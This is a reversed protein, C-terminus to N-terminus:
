REELARELALKILGGVRSRGFRVDPEGPEQNHVTLVPHEREAAEMLKALHGLRPERWDQRVTLCDGGIYEGRTGGDVATMRIEGTAPVAESDIAWYNTNRLFEDHGLGATAIIFRGARMADYAPLNWSEGRSATVYCDCTAHLNDIEEATLRGTTFHIPPLDSPQMGTAAISAMAVAAPAANSSHVHLEVGNYKGFARLYARVVGEINKRASWAGITYFRYPDGVGRRRPPMFPRDDCAHPIIRTIFRNGDRDIARATKASPVWVQDFASLSNLLELPAHLGEWTTYAVLLADPCTEKVKALELTKACSLPLTHVIVVDPAPTPPKDDSRICPGLLTYKRHLSAAATLIELDIGAALMAMCFENAADGYGTPLGVPGYYRVKM